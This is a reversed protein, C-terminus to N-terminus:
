QRDTERERKSTSKLVLKKESNRLCVIVCVQGWIFQDGLKHAVRKKGQREKWRQKMLKAETQPKDEKTRRTTTCKCTNRRRTHTEENKLYCANSVLSVLQCMLYSTTFSAELFTELFVMALKAHYAEETIKGSIEKTKTSFHSSNM